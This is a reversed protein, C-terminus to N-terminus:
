RRRATARPQAVHAARRLRGPRGQGAPWHEHTITPYPFDANSFIGYINSASGALPSADALLKEEGDSLTHAARRFSTACRYFAYTALRPEQRSSGRSRPRGSACSRPSSSRRRRRRLRRLAAADGAAHGAPGVERTDEDALMSAYVYLRSLEKDLRSMLELADALTAASTGLKGEFSRIRPLEAVIRVKEARWAQIDPYIEALNWKFRDEIAERKRNGEATATTM